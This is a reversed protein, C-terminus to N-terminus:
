GRRDEYNKKSKNLIRATKGNEKLVIEPGKEVTICSM